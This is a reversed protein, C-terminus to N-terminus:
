AEANKLIRKQVKRMLKMKESKRPGKLTPFPKPRQKIVRPEIRGPRNGVKNKVILKLLESYMMKNKAISSSLFQPMFENLLQITGKFSIKWPLSNHKICAEAMIIRIFNYALFHVGIEKKVMEPTKCSLMDMNMIAKISKLNIEVEWRRKYIEALEAKPYKKSNLFTMVYINGNVKLERIQIQCPYTNYKEQSMWTPKNPKKWLAIHDNKGLKEGTRFDYYRQSQGRFIGDAGIEQLDAMLFFNPYYRDDLVVDDKEICDFILLPQCRESSLISTLSLDGKNDLLFQKQKEIQALKNKKNFDM